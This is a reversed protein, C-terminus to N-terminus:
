FASDHWQSNQMETSLTIRTILDHVTVSEEWVWLLVLLLSLGWWYWRHGDDDRGADQLHCSQFCFPNRLWLSSHGARAAAHSRRAGARPAKEMRATGVFFVPITGTSFAQQSATRVPNTDSVHRIHLLLSPTRLLSAGGVKGYKKEGVKEYSRHAPFSLMVGLGHEETWISRRRPHWLATGGPHPWTETSLTYSLLKKHWYIFGSVLVRRWQM